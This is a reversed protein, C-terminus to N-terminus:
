GKMGLIEDKIQQEVEKAITDKLLKQTSTEIDLLKNSVRAIREMNSQQILKLYSLMEQLM